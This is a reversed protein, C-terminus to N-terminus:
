LRQRDQCEIRCLPCDLPQSDKRRTNVWELMCLTHFTHEVNSAEHSYVREGRIIPEQCISCDNSTSAQKIEMPNHSVLRKRINMVTSIETAVALIVAAGAAAKSMSSTLKQGLMGIGTLTLIQFFRSCNLNKLLLSKGATEVSIGIGLITVLFSIALLIGKIAYEGIFGGATELAGGATEILGLASTALKTFLVATTRIIKGVLGGVIEGTFRGIAAASQYWTADIEMPKFFDKYIIHTHNIPDSYFTCQDPITQLQM